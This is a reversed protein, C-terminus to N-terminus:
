QGSGDGRRVTSADRRTAHFKSIRMESFDVSVSKSCCRPNPRTSGGNEVGSMLWFRREWKKPNATRRLDVRFSEPLDNATISQILDPNKTFIRSFEAYADEKTLHAYRRVGSSTRIRQEVAAIDQNTADVSM